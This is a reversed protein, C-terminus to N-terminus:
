LFSLSVFVIETGPEVGLQIFLRRISIELSERYDYGIGTVMGAEDKYEM